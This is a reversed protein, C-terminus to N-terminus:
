TAGEWGSGLEIVTPHEGTRQVYRQKARSV